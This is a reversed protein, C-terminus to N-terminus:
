WTTLTQFIYVGLKFVDNVIYRRSCEYWCCYYGLFFTDNGMTIMKRWIPTCPLLCFCISVNGSHLNRHSNRNFLAPLVTLPVTVGVQDEWHNHRGYPHIYFGKALDCTRFIPNWSYHWRPSGGFAFIVIFYVIVFQPFHSVLQSM